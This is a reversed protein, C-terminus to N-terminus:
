WWARQDRFVFVDNEPGFPEPADGLEFERLAIALLVDMSPRNDNAAQQLRRAGLKSGGFFARAVM